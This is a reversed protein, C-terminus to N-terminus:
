RTCRASGASFVRIYGAFDFALLEAIRVSNVATERYLWVQPKVAHHNCLMLRVKSYISTGLAITIDLIHNHEMVFDLANCKLAQFQENDQGICGSLVTHM